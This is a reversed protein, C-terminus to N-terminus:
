APQLLSAPFEGVLPEEGEMPVEVRYLSRGGVGIAGRDEVIVGTLRRQVLLFSVRDGVRYRRESRRAERASPAEQTKMPTGKVM